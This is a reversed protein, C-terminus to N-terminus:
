EAATQRLLEALEARKQTYGPEDARNYREYPDATLDYMEVFGGRIEVYKWRDPAVVGRLM